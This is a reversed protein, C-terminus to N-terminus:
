HCSPTRSNPFCFWRTPLPVALLIERLPALRSAAFSSSTISLDVSRPAIRGKREEKGYRPAKADQRRQTSDKYWFIVGYGQNDNFLLSCTGHVSISAAQRQRHQGPQHRKAAGTTRPKLPEHSRFRPHQRRRGAQFLHDLGDVLDVGLDMGERRVLGREADRPRWGEPCAQRKLPRPSQPEAAVHAQRPRFDIQAAVVLNNQNQTRRLWGGAM